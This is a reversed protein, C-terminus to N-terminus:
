GIFLVSVESIKKGRSGPGGGQRQGGGGEAKRKNGALTQGGGSGLNGGGGSSTSSHASFFAPMAGAFLNSNPDDKTNEKLTASLSIHNLKVNEGIM